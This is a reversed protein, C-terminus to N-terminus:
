KKILDQYKAIISRRKSTYEDRLKMTNLLSSKFENITWELNEKDVKSVTSLIASCKDIMHDYIAIAETFAHVSILEKCATEVSNYIESNTDLSGTYLADEDSLRNSQYTVQLYTDPDKLFTSVDSVSEMASSDEDIFSMIEDLISSM